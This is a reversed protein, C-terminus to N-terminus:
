FLDESTIGLDISQGDDDVVTKSTDLDTLINEIAIPSTQTNANRRLTKKDGAFKNLYQDFEAIFKDQLKIAEAKDLENDMKVPVLVMEYGLKSIIQNLGKEGIKDQKGSLFYRIGLYSQPLEMDKLFSTINPVKTLLLDKIKTHLM